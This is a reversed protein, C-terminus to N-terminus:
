FHILRTIIEHKSIISNRKGIDLSTDQDSNICLFRILFLYISCDLVYWCSFSSEPHDSVWQHDDERYPMSPYWPQHGVTRSRQGSFFQCFIHNIQFFFTIVTWLKTKEQINGAKMKFLICMNYASGKYVFHIEKFYIYVKWLSILSM